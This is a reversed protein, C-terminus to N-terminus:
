ILSFSISRILQESESTEIRLVRHNVSHQNTCKGSSHCNTCLDYDECVLCKWRVGVITPMGCGDCSVGPHGPGKTFDSPQIATLASMGAPDVGIPGTNQGDEVKKGEHVASEEWIEVMATEPRVISITDDGNLIEIDGSEPLIEVTAPDERESSVTIEIDETKPFFRAKTLKREQTAAEFSEMELQLLDHGAFTEPPVVMSDRWSRFIIKLPNSMLRNYGVYKHDFNAAMAMSRAAEAAVRALKRVDWSPRNTAFYEQLVVSNPPRKEGSVNAM